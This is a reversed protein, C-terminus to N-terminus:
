YNEEIYSAIQSFTKGGIKSTQNEKIGAMQNGDNMRTLTTMDKYTLGISEAFAPPPIQEEEDMAEQERAHDDEGSTWETYDYTRKHEYDVRVGMVESLVGLCCQGEENILYGRTQKTNPDRLKACWKDKISKDM